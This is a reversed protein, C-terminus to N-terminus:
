LEKISAAKLCKWGNVFVWRFFVFLYRKGPKLGAM